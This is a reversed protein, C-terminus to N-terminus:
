ELQPLAKLLSDVSSELTCKQKAIQRQRATVHRLAIAQEIGIKLAGPDRPEVTTLLGLNTETLGGINSAVVRCGAHQAEVALMGFPEAFVSPMVLIDSEAMLQAMAAPTKKATLISAYPYNHLMSAVSRGTETHQGAAVISVDFRSFTSQYVELMEMLVYIGKSASLRGAFIVRPRKSLRTRKVKGYAPDAFPLVIHIHKHAIGVYFAVQQANYESTAIVVKGRVEQHMVAPRPMISTACHLIIAAKHKTPVNYARNIFVVQGDLTSIDSEDELGLFPVGPFDIRSQAPPAGVTVVQADIGRRRLERVQGATYTESGGTGALMSSGAPWVFSIMACEKAQSM